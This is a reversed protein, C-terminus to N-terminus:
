IKISWPCFSPENRNIHITETGARCEKNNMSVCELADCSFYIMATVIVKEIFDSM